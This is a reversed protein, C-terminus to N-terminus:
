LLRVQLPDSEKKIRAFSLSFNQENINLPTCDQTMDQRDCCEIIAFDGKGGGTKRVPHFKSEVVLVNEPVPGFMSIVVM